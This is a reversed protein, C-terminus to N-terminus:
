STDIHIVGEDGGGVRFSMCFPSVMDELLHSFQVEVQFKFFTLEIDGFDFVEPHDHFGLLKSHVEHFKVTNSGPWGECFDLFYMGEKAKDIEIILEDGVIRSNDM